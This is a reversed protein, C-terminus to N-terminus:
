DCALGGLGTNILTTRKSGSRLVIGILILVVSGKSLEHGILESSLESFGFCLGLGEVGIAGGKGPPHSPQSGGLRVKRRFCFLHFNVLSERRIKLSERRLVSMNQGSM